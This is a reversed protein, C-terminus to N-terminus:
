TILSALAISYFKSETSDARSTLVIPRKGGVVVSASKADALFMMSKYFVNGAEIQPMLIMDVDGAVDGKVGKHEAAEKSIANDLGFPGDVLCGTLKQEQNRKVLEVADVTPQMKNNLKEIAAIIGVKPNSIGLKHFVGVGNEIIEQKEDVNPYMNMAGDTMMLLKHYNKLAFLSVHSLRRVGKFAFEEKLVSKLIVKTDVYGKMLIYGENESALKVAYDCAKDHEMEDIIEYYDQNIKLSDFLMLIIEKNGILIPRVIDESRAMEVAELVHKDDACAVVLTKLDGEKAQSVLDKMNKFM